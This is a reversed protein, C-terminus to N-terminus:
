LLGERGPASSAASNCFDLAISRSSSLALCCSSPFTFSNSRPAPSDPLDVINLCIRMKCPAGRPSSSRRIYPTTILDFTITAIRLSQVWKRFRPNSSCSASSGAASATSPTGLKDGFSANSSSIDKRTSLVADSGGVAAVFPSDACSQTPWLGRAPNAALLSAFCNRCCTCAILDRHCDLVIFSTQAFRAATFTISPCLSYRFSM